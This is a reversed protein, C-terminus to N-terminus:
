QAPFFEDYPASEFIQNAMKFLIKSLNQEIPPVVEGKFLEINQNIVENAARELAKQGNFLNDFYVKLDVSKIVVQASDIKLYEVGNRLYRTGSLKLISKVNDMTFSEDGSGQIAFIGLNWGLHYKAFGDMHPLTILVEMKFKDPNVRLKEIKFNNMGLIYMGLLKVNINRNVAIDGVYIRTLNTTVLNPGYIGTSIQPKMGEVASILCEALKPSTRPCTKFGPALKAQTTECILIVVFIQLCVSYYKNM